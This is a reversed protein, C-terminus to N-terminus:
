NECAFDHAQRGFDYQWIACKSCRATRIDPNKEEFQAKVGLVLVIPEPYRKRDRRRASEVGCSCMKDRPFSCKELFLLALSIALKSFNEYNTIINIIEQFV